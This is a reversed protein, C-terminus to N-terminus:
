YEWLDHEMEFLWTKLKEAELLADVGLAYSNIRRNDYVNSVAFIHSSFRRQMFFDDFSIRQSDNYQNFIEHNALLPRIEPYYVWFTPTQRIDDMPMGEEDLRHYLRIPSIGIIRAKMVSHNKDFFWKEKILLKKVQDTRRDNEVTQTILEGTVPDQTTFTDMGADFVNDIEERTMQMTFENLQDNTSFARVGENDIGELILSVLNMRGGIPRTPYYLPQNQIQRLDIIRYIVKSWMVDAERIYEYPVPKKNPVHERVYVERLNDQAKLGITTFSSMAILGVLIFSLRKM